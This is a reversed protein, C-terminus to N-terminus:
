SSYVAAATFSTIFVRPQARRSPRAEASNRVTRYEPAASASLFYVFRRRESVHFYLWPMHHAYNIINQRTNRSRFFAQTFYAQFQQVPTNRSSNCPKPMVAPRASVYMLNLASCLAYDSRQTNFGNTVTSILDMLSRKANCAKDSAVTVMFLSMDPGIRRASIHFARYGAYYLRCNM